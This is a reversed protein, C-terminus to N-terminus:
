WISARPWSRGFGSYRTWPCTSRVSRPSANCVLIDVGGRTAMLPHLTDRCWGEDAADGQIMDVAGVFQRVSTRVREADAVSERYSALVSCGQSALAQVIASGLGRSGGIVIALKGRLRASQPLLAELLSADSTPSEARVFARLKATAVLGDVASLEAEIDVYELEVNPRVIRARYAYPAPSGSDRAHIQVDASWFLARRGPLEMGVLYSVWLLAAWADSSMGKHFLRWRDILRELDPLSPAYSGSVELGARLDELRRDVPESLVPKVSALPMARHAASGGLSTAVTMLLRQGDFIRVRDAESPAADVEIRYDVGTFLPHRFTMSIGSVALLSREATHALAALGGLVGYVVPEGYPTRRAYTESLHLPNRDHSAASFLDLDSRDFRTTGALKTM